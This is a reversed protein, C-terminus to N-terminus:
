ELNFRMEETKFLGDGTEIVPGTTISSVQSLWFPQYDKKSPNQENSRMSIIRRDFSYYTSQVSYLPANNGEKKFRYISIELPSIGKEILSAEKSSNSTKIILASNEVIDYVQNLTNYVESRISQGFGIFPILFLSYLIKKM